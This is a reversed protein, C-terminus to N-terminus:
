RSDERMKRRAYDRADKEVSANTYGAGKKKWTSNSKVRTMGRIQQAHRLEHYMAEAVKDVPRSVTVVMHNKGSTGHTNVRGAKSKQGSIFLKLKDKKDVREIVKVINPHKKLVKKLRIRNVREQINKPENKLPTYNKDSFKKRNLANSKSNEINIDLKKIRKSFPKKSM